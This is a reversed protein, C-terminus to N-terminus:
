CIRAIGVSLVCASHSLVRIPNVYKRLFDRYTSHRQRRVDDRTEAPSKYSFNLFFFQFQIVRAYRSIHRGIHTIQRKANYIKLETLSTVVNLQKNCSIRTCRKFTVCCNALFRESFLVRM